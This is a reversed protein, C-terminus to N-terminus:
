YTIYGGAVAEEEEAESLTAWLPRLQDSVGKPQMLYFIPPCNTVFSICANMWSQFWWYGEGIKIGVLKQETLSASSRAKLTPSRFDRLKLRRPNDTSPSEKHWENPKLSNCAGEQNAPVAFSTSSKALFKFAEKRWTLLDVLSTASTRALLLTELWVKNLKKRIAGKHRSVWRTQHM